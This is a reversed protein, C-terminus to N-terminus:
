DLRVTVTIDGTFPDEISHETAVGLREGPSMQRRLDNVYRNVQRIEDAEAPDISPGPWTEPTDGEPKDLPDTM